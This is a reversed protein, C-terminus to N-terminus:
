TERQELAGNLAARSSTEFREATDEIHLWPLRRSEYSHLTPVLRDADDFLSLHLFTQGPVYDGRFAIPTGCDACFTRSFGTGSVKAPREPGRIEVDDSRFAALAAVPAGTIRRCDICHCYSVTAPLASAFVAM